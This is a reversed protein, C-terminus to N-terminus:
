IQWTLTPPSMMPPGFTPANLSPSMNFGLAPGGGFQGPNLPMPTMRPDMEFYSQPRIGWGNYDQFQPWQQLPSGIPPTGFPKFAWAGGNQDAYQYVQQNVPGQNKFQQQMQYIQNQLMMTMMMQNMSMLQQMILSQDLALQNVQNTLVENDKNKTCVAKEEEEITKTAVAVVQNAKEKAQVVADEKSKAKAMALAQAAVETAKEGALLSTQETSKEVALDRTVAKVRNAMANATSHVQESNELDELLSEAVELMNPIERTGLDMNQVIKLEEKYIVLESVLKEIEDRKKAIDIDKIFGERLQAFKDKLQAEQKLFRDVDVERPESPKDVKSTLAALRPYQEQDIISAIQRKIQKTEMQAPSIALLSLLPLIAWSKRNFQSM